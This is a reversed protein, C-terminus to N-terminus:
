IKNKDKNEIFESRKVLLDNKQLVKNNTNNNNNNNSSSSSSSSIIYKIKNKNKHTFSHMSTTTFYLSVIKNYIKYNRSM